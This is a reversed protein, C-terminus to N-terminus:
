SSFVFGVEFRHAIVLIEPLDFLQVSFVTLSGIDRLGTSQDIRCTRDNTDTGVLKVNVIWFKEVLQVTELPFPVFIWVSGMLKGVGIRYYSGDFMVDM